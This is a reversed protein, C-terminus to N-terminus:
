GTIQARITCPIQAYTQKDGSDTVQVELYTSKSTESGLFTAVAAASFDLDVYKGSLGTLSSTFTINSSVGSITYTTSSNKATLQITGSLDGTQVVTCAAESWGAQANVAAEIATEMAATDIPYQVFASTASLAPSTNAIGVTFFGSRVGEGITFPSLGGGVTGATISPTAVSTSTTTSIIEASGPDGIQVKVTGTPFTKIEM